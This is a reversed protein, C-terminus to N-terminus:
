INHLKIVEYLDVDVDYARENYGITLTVKGNDKGVVNDYVDKIGVTADAFILVNFLTITEICKQPIFKNKVLIVDNCKITLGDVIENSNNYLRIGIKSYKNSQESKEFYMEMYLETGKLKSTIKSIMESSAKIAQIGANIATLTVM